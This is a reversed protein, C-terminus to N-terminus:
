RTRVMVVGRRNQFWCLSISVTTDTSCSVSRLIVGVGKIGEEGRFGALVPNEYVLDRVEEILWRGGDATDDKVNCVERIECM